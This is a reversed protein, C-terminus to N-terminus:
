KAGISQVYQLKSECQTLFYEMETQNSATTTVTGLDLLGVEAITGALGREFVISHKVETTLNPDEIVTKLHQLMASYQKTDM